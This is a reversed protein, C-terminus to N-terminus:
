TRPLEGYHDAIEVWAADFAKFLSRHTEPDFNAGEIVSAKM